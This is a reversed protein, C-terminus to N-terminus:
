SDSQQKLFAKYVNQHGDVAGRQIKQYFLIHLGHTQNLKVVNKVSIAPM